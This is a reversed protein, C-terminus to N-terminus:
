FNVRLGLSPLFRTYYFTRTKVHTETEDSFDFDYGMVNRRNYLDWIEVYFSTNRSFMSFEYQLRLNLQHFSPYRESNTPGQVLMYEWHNGILVPEYRITPTYPRGSTYRFQLDLTFRRSFNWDLVISAMHRQDFDSYSEVKDLFERRKAMGLSYSLWGTLKGKQKELFMELGRAYGKGDNSYNGLSDGTVLDKYVKQYFEVWGAWTDDFKKTLGFVYHITKKSKLTPDKSLHEMEPNQACYGWALRLTTSSSLGYSLALRPLLDKNHNLNLYDFRMGGTLSFRETVKWSDQLYTGYRKLPKDVRYNVLPTAPDNPDAVPDFYHISFPLRETLDPKMYGLELGAKIEHRSVLEWTLDQRFGLDLAKIDLDEAWGIQVDYRVEERTIATLSYLKDSIINKWELSQTNLKGLDYLRRAIGPRPNPDFFDIKEDTFLGSFSVKQGQWPEYGVKFNFDYFKPLPFGESQSMVLDLYSRRGSFLFFGKPTIPGEILAQTNILGISVDGSFHERNGDRTTVNLVSSLCEGYKVPFGGTLLEIRDIIESNFVSKMGGFYWPWHVKTWDLLFLNEEPGGGRVYIQSPMFLDGLSTIGPLTQIVRIPDQMQGERLLVTRREILHDSVCSREALREGSVVVSPLSVPRPKLTIELKTTKDPEITVLLTDSEYGIMGAVVNYSGSPVGTIRFHGSTDSATGSKTGILMISVGTLPKRTAGDIVAGYLSGANAGVAADQSILTMIVWCVLLIIKEKM